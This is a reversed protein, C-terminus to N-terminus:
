PLAPLDPLLKELVNEGNSVRVTDNPARWPRGFKFPSLSGGDPTNRGEEAYYYDIFYKGEMLNDFAFRGDTDCKTFYPRKTDISLLRVTVGPNARVLKGKLSALKIKPM